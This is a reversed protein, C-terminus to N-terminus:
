RLLFRHFEDQLVDLLDTLPPDKGHTHIPVTLTSEHQDLLHVWPQLTIHTRGVDDIVLPTEIRNKPFHFVSYFSRFM